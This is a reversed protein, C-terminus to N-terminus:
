EQPETTLSFGRETIFVTESSGDEPMLRELHREGKRTGRTLRIAYDAWYDLINQAVPVYRKTEALSGRVQKLILVAMDKERALGKLIGAQM